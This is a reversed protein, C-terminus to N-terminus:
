CCEYYVFCFIGLVRFVGGSANESFNTSNVGFKRFNECAQVLVSEGTICVIEFVNVRLFFSFFINCIAM